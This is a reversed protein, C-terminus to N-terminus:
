CLFNSVVETFKYPEDNHPTHGSKDFIIIKGNISEKLYCEYQESCCIPDYKGLILISPCQFGSLLPMFDKNVEGDNLLREFNVLQFINKAM